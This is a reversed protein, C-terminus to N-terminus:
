RVQKGKPLNRLIEDNKEFLGKVSQEIRDIRAGLQIELAQHTIADERAKKLQGDFLERDRKAMLYQGHLNEYQNHASYFVIFFSGAILTIVASEFISRKLTKLQKRSDMRWLVAFTIAYFVVSFALSAPNILEAIDRGICGYAAYCVEPLGVITMARMPTDKENLTTGNNVISALETSITTLVVGLLLYCIGFWELHITGTGLEQLQTQFRRDAEERATRELALDKGREITEQTLAKDTEALESRLTDLNSELVSVRQEVSGSSPAGRWLQAKVSDKPMGYSAGEADIHHAKRRWLSSFWQHVIQILGPRNFLQQRDVIGLAVTVIGALEFGLGCYRIRVEPLTSILFGFL